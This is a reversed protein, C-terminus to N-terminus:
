WTKLFACPPSREDQVHLKQAAHRSTYGGGEHANKWSTDWGGGKKTCKGPHRRRRRRRAAAEPAAASAAAPPAATPAALAVAAAPVAEM